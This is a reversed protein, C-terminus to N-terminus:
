RRSLLKAAIFGIGFVIAASLLPQESIKEGVQEVSESGRNKMASAGSKATGVADNLLKTVDERLQMFSLQLNEFDSFHGSAPDKVATGNENTTAM